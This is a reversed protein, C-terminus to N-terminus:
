LLPACRTCPWFNAGTAVCCLLVLLTYLTVVADSHACFLQLMVGCFGWAPADCSLLVMLTCLLVVACRLRLTLCTCLSFVAGCPHNAYRCCLLWLTCRMCCCFFFFVSRVDRWVWATMPWLAGACLPACTCFLILRLCTCRPLISCLESASCGRVSQLGPLCPFAHWCLCTRPIAPACRLRCGLFSHQLLM